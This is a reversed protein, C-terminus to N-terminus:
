KYTRCLNEYKALVANSCKADYEFSQIHAAIAESDPTGQSHPSSITQVGAAAKYM